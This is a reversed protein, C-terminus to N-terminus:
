KKLEEQIEKLEKRMKDLEERMEKLEGEAEGRRMVRVDVDGADCGHKGGFHEFHKMMRPAAHISFHDDGEGIIQLHKSIADEPMEGLTIDLSMKKGKRVVKVTTKQGSETDDIAKYLAGSSDIDDDGFQVIVDGAKLGAEAAPSDEVVETVLAGNGEDVGFYEGMQENLDDLHVGMFGRDLNFKGAKDKFSWKFDDDDGSMVIVKDMHKVRPADDESMFFVNKAEHKGIEIDLKKNKGGRLVVVKVKDGPNTGRVAKVLDGSDSITQGNFELIVDGDELGAAAAPSDDVVESIMVGTKEDMQLAKAMSPTVDQLMVGLYGKDEGAQVSCAFVLLVISLMLVLTRKAAPFAFM